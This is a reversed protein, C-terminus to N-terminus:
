CMKKKIKDLQLNYTLNREMKGKIGKFAFRLLNIQRTQQSLCRSQFEWTTM